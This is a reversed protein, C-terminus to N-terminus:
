NGGKKILAKFQEEIVQMEESVQYQKCVWVEQRGENVTALSRWTLSVEKAKCRQDKNNVCELCPCYVKTM